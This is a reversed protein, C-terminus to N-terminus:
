SYNSQIFKFIIHRTPSFFQDDFVYGELNSTDDTCVPLVPVQVSRVQRKPRLWTTIDGIGQKRSILEPFPASVFVVPRNVISSTTTGTVKPLLETVIVTGVEETRLIPKGSRQELVNNLLLLLVFCNASVWDNFHFVYYQTCPISYKRTSFEPSGCCSVV